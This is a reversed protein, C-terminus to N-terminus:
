SAAEYWMAVNIRKNGSNTWVTGAMDKSLTVVQSSPPLEARAPTSMPTGADIGYCPFTWLAGASGAAASEYPVTFSFGTANSTGVIYANVFVLKGVKKYYIFKESVSSFGVITSTAAYDTWVVTYIDGLVKMIGAFYGNKWKIDDSGIDDMNNTDSILSTNIAVSSLNDLSASASVNQWVTSGTTNVWLSYTGSNNYVCLRGERASISGNPADTSTLVDLSAALESITSLLKQLDAPKTLDKIPLRIDM